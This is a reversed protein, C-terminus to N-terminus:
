APRADIKPGATLRRQNNGDVGIQFINGMVGYEDINFAIAKGDPLWCPTFTSYSSRTVMHLNSGDADIVFVQFSSHGGIKEQGISVFSVLKGDPSWAAQGAGTKTLRMVNRGDSEMVYLDTKGSRDSTFLIKGEPSWKPSTDSGPDSTLRTQNAGDA